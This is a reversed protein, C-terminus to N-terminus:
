KIQLIKQKEKQKLKNFLNKKNFFILFFILSFFFQHATTTKLRRM